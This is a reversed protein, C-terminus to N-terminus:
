WLKPVGFYSLIVILENIAIMGIALKPRRRGILTGFIAYIALRALLMPWRYGVQKFTQEDLTFALAFAIFVGLVIVSWQRGRTWFSAKSAEKAQTM